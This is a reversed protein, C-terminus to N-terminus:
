KIETGKVVRYFEIINDQTIKRDYQNSDCLTIAFEKNHTLVTITDIKQHFNKFITLKTTGWQSTKWLLVSSDPKVVLPLKNFFTGNKSGIGYIYKEIYLTDKTK